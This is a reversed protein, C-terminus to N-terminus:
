CGKTSYLIQGNPQKLQIPAVSRSAIDHPAEAKLYHGSAGADDIESANSLSTSPNVICYLNNVFKLKDGGM